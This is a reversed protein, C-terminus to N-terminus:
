KIQSTAATPLIFFISNYCHWTMLFAMTSMIIIGPCCLRLPSPQGDSEQEGDREAEERDRRCALLLIHIILHILLLYISTKVHLRKLLSADTTGGGAAISSSQQKAAKWFQKQSSYRNM